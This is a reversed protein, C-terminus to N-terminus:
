DISLSQRVLDLDREALPCYRSAGDECSVCKMINGFMRNMSVSSGSVVINQRRKAVERVDSQLKKMGDFCRRSLTNNDGTRLPDMSEGARVIRRLESVLSNANLLDQRGAPKTADASSAAAPPASGVGNEAGSLAPSASGFGAFEEDFDDFDSESRFEGYSVPQSNSTARFAPDRDNSQVYLAASLVLIIAILAATTATKLWFKKM